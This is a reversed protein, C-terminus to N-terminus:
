RVVMKGANLLQGNASLRYIYLGPLLDDRRIQIQAGGSREERRWVRGQTDSIELELHNFELGTVEFTASHEFPNPYVKISANEVLVQETGTVQVHIFGEGVTHFTTNTVVPANFDFYISATNEIRAGVPNGPVQDIEFKFFGQSAAENINSDPLMINDFRVVLVGGTRLEWTYPHSSAGMRISRADLLPSLVDTVMVQFATDTGTNQFRIHYSLPINNVIFHADEYGLPEASKDNPDFAGINPRCDISVFPSINGNYFELMLSPDNIESPTNCGATTATVETDGLLYPFNEGREVISRYTAGPVAPVRVEFSNGGGLQFPSSLIMVHEEIISYNLPLLMDSGTNTITFIITDNNCASTTEIFPGEWYNPICITDPYIHAETCHVQGLVVEPDCGTTVHITFYGSSNANVTGIDFRYANGTQSLLPVSSSNFTLFPDLTVDVYANHAAITGLNSYRVTYTSPMCRRLFSTSIDVTMFTCSDLISMPFDLTDRGFFGPFTVTQPNQCYQWYPSIQNATVVYTGSDAEMLYSGGLGNYTSTAHGGNTKTMNVIVGSVPPEGSDFQCNNNLDQFVRGYVYNTFLQGLADVTMLFPGAGDVGFIGYGHDPNHSIHRGHAVAQGSALTTSHLVSGAPSLQIFGVSHHGTPVGTALFGTVTFSGDANEVAHYASTYGSNGGSSEWHWEYNGTQDIKLAMMKQNSGVDRRGSILYGGDSTPLVAEPANYTSFAYVQEWVPNGDTDTKIVRTMNGSGGVNVFSTDKTGALLYHQDPTEIVEMSFTNENPNDYFRTWLANAEADLKCLGLHYMNSGDIVVSSILLHNDSTIVLSSRTSGEYVDMGMNLARNWIVEGSASLKLIFGSFSSQQYLVYYSDDFPNYELDIPAEYLPSSIQRTWQPEGFQDTKLIYLDLNFIGVTGAMIFGDDVTRKAYARFGGPNINYYTHLAGQALICFPGLWLGTLLLLKKM